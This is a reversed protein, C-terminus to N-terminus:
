PMMLGSILNPLMRRRTETRPIITTQSIHRLSLNDSYYIHDSDRIFVKGSFCFINVQYYFYKPKLKKTPKPVVRIQYENTM